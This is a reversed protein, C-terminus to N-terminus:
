AGTVISPYGEEALAHIFISTDEPLKGAISVHGSKLDVDVKDVGAINTLANTVHKVCNGCTMNSVQLELKNM